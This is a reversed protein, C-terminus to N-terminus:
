TRAARTVATGPEDGGDAGLSIADGDGGAATGTATSTATAAQALLRAARRIETETSWRGLSLRLASRARQESLGMATLVPSPAEAGEHCASGTSAAIEPVAALLARGSVGEVSVNLTGPLRETPHGNVRVRGPLLAELEAQLLDRLAALRVASGPLEQRALEAAHGLAAIFAVNETGARVGGEQGGGHIIPHLPTGARVYLAGAGKPAYMKHGVVTLLDVGLAAVDIPVKGVAQAADTHFLAGAAHTLAALEPIQQLTGTESNGYAISV